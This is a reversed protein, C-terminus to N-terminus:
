ESSSISGNTSQKLLPEFVKWFDEGSVSIVHSDSTKTDNTEIWTVILNPKELNTSNSANVQKEQATVVLTENIMVGIIVMLAALISKTIVLRLAFEDRYRTDLMNNLAILLIPM